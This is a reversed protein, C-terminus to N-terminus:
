GSHHNGTFHGPRNDKKDGKGEKKLDDLTKYM